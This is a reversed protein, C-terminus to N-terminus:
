AVERRTRKQKTGPPAVGYYDRYWDVFRGIGVELPTSPAFGTVEALAEVDAYTAQVDGAQM